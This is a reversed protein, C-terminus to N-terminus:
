KKAKTLHNYWLINNTINHCLTKKTSAYKVIYFGWRFLEQTYEDDDNDHKDQIAECRKKAQEFDKKNTFAELDPSLEDGMTWIMYIM